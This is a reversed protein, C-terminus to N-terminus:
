PSYGARYFGTAAAAPFIVERVVVSGRDELQTSSIPAVATWAALNGSFYFKRGFDDANKRETCRLAIDSGNVFGTVTFAPKADAFLPDSGLQYEMWNSRGDSDPDAEPANLAANTVGRMGFMWQEWEGFPASLPEVLVSEFSATAPADATDDTPPVAEPRVAMAERASRRQAARRSGAIHKRLIAALWARPGATTPAPQTCASALADHALEDAAEHRQVLQRALAQLWARERLLLEPQDPVGNM